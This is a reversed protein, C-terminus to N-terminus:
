PHQPTVFGPILTTFNSRNSTQFNTPHRGCPSQFGIMPLPKSRTRESFSHLSVLDFCSPPDHDSHSVRVFSLREFSHSQSTTQIKKAPPPRQTPSCKKYKVTLPQSLRGGKHKKKKGEGQALRQQGRNLVMLSASKKKEKKKKSDLTQLCSDRPRDSVLRAVRGKGEPSSLTYTNHKVQASGGLFAEWLAGQSSHTYPDGEWDPRSSFRIQCDQVPDTCNM